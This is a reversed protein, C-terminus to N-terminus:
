TVVGGMGHRVLSRAWSWEIQCVRLYMCNAKAQSPGTLEVGNVRVARGKMRMPLVSESTAALTCGPAVWLCPASASAARLCACVGRHQLAPGEKELHAAFEQITSAKELGEQYKKLYEIELEHCDIEAKRKLREITEVGAIALEEASYRSDNSSTKDQLKLISDWLHEQVKKGQSRSARDNSGSRIQKWLLSQM